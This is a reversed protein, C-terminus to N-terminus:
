WLFRLGANLTVSDEFDNGFLYEADGYLLLNRSLDKRFGLGVDFWTGENDLEDVFRGSTTRDEVMYRQRGNWEHLIDAVAYISGSEFSKGARLGFRTILSNIDDQSVYTGQSTRYSADEVRVYQVQLEPEVFYGKSLDFKLGTEFSLGFVNNDYDGSIVNGDSSIIDFANDLRGYKGVLDWYFGNNGIWTTYATVGLRDNEGNGSISHYEVDTEMVDLAVGWLRTGKDKIVSRDYGFQYTTNHSRYDGKGADTGVRDHRVRVFLGNPAKGANIDGLRRVMRDMEISNYYTARATAIITEGADSEDRGSVGTIFWNTAGDSAIVNDVFNSGPKDGSEGNSSSNYLDNADYNVDYDAHDMRYEINFYGANTTRAALPKSGSAPAEYYGSTTAFRLPTKSTVTELGEIGGVVEITQTGNNNAIYLMDGKTRDLANLTMRFTADGNLNRISLSNAAGESLDIVTNEGATLTTVFNQNHAHWVANEMKLNVTGPSTVAVDFEHPRSVMELTDIGYSDVRGALLATQQATGSLSVNIEGGNGALLDGIIVTGQGGITIRAGEHSGGPDEFGRGALVDGAIVYRASPNNLEIQGYARGRIAVQKDLYEEATNNEQYSITRLDDGHVSIFANTDIKILSSTQQNAQSHGAIIADTGDLQGFSLHTSALTGLPDANTLHLSGGEVILSGDLQLNSGVSLTASAENEVHVARRGELAITQAAAKFTGGHVAIAESRSHYDEAAPETTANVVVSISDAELSVNSQGEILLGKVNKAGYSEFSLTELASINVQSQSGSRFATVGDGTAADAAIAITKGSLLTTGNQAYLSTVSTQSQTGSQRSSDVSSIILTDETRIESTGVTRLGYVVSSNDTKTSFYANKASVSFDGAAEYVGYVTNTDHAITNLKFDGTSAVSLLGNDSRLGYAVTGNSTSLGIDVESGSLLLTGTNYTGFTNSVGEVETQIRLTGQESALTMQTQGEDYIRNYLGYVTQAGSNKIQTSVSLDNLSELTLTSVPTQGTGYSYITQVTGTGSSSVPDVILDVNISDANVTLESNDSALGLFAGSVSGISIDFDASQEATLRISGSQNPSSISSQILNGSTGDGIEVRKLLFNRGATVNLTSSEATLTRFFGADSTSTLTIDEAATIFSEGPSSYLQILANSNALDINLSGAAALQLPNHTLILSSWQPTAFSASLDLNGDTAILEIASDRISSIIHNSGTYDLQFNLSPSLYSLGTTVNVNSSPQTLRYVGDSDLTLRTSQAGGWPTPLKASDVSAAGVIPLLLLSLLTYRYPLGAKPVSSLTKTM